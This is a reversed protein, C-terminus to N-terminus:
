HGGKEPLIMTLTIIIGFFFAYIFLQIIAIFKKLHFDHKCNYIFFGLIGGMCICIGVLPLIAQRHEVVSFIVQGGAALSSRLM